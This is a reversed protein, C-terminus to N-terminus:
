RQPKYESQFQGLIKKATNVKEVMTAAVAGWEAEIECFFHLFGKVQRQAANGTISSEFELKREGLAVAKGYYGRARAYLENVRAMDATAEILDDACGAPDPSVPGQSGAMLRTLEPQTEKAFDNFTKGWRDKVVDPFDAWAPYVGAMLSQLM